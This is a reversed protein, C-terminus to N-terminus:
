DGTIVDMGIARAPESLWPDPNHIYRSLPRNGRVAAWTRLVAIRMSRVTGRSEYLQRYDEDSLRVQAGQPDMGGPLLHQAIVTLPTAPNMFAAHRIEEDWDHALASLTALDTSPDGALTLRAAHLDTLHPLTAVPKAHPRM